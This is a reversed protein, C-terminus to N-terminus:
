EAANLKCFMFTAFDTLEEQNLMLTTLMAEYSVWQEPGTLTNPIWPRLELLRRAHNQSSDALYEQEATSLAEDSGTKTNVTKANSGPYRISGSRKRQHVINVLENLIGNGTIDKVCPCLEPDTPPTEKIRQYIPAAAAYVEQMLYQHSVKELTNMNQPGLHPNLMFHAMVKLAMTKFDNDYGALPADFLIVQESSLDDNVVPIKNILPAEPEFFERIEELHLSHIGQAAGHSFTSINLGNNTMVEACSAPVTDLKVHGNNDMETADATGEEMLSAANESLSSTTNEVLAKTAGEMMATTTIEEMAKTAKNTVEVIAETTNELIAIATSEVTAQTTDENMADTTGEKMAETIGENMAETIGENTAETIGKNTAETIGKNTAETIGEVMAQITGDVTAKTTVEILPLNKRTNEMIVMATGEVMATNTEEIIENNNKKSMVVTTVEGSDSADEVNNRVVKVSNTTDEMFWNTTEEIVTTRMTTEELTYVHTDVVDHPYEMTENDTDQEKDLPSYTLTPYNLTPYNLAPNSLTPNNLTPYNLTQVTRAGSSGAPGPYPLPPYVLAAPLAWPLCLLVIFRM